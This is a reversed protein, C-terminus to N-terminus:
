KENIFGINLYRLKEALSNLQEEEAEVTVSCLEGKEIKSITSGTKAAMDIVSGLKDYSCEVTLSKLNSKEIIDANLIASQAATKYANILGSIGLKKGGFYRVVVILVNTLGFSKIQGLVAPASSNHPEKDDSYQVIEGKKGIRCAYVQHRADHYKKKLSLRIQKVEEKNAVPYVFSYFESRKCKFVGAAKRSITKYRKNSM